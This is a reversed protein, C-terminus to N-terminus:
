CCWCSCMSLCVFVINLVPCCLLCRFEGILTWIRRCITRTRVSSPCPRFTPWRRRRRRRRRSWVPLSLTLRKSFDCRVLYVLFSMDDVVCVDKAENYWWTLSMWTCLYRFFLDNVGYKTAADRTRELCERLVPMTFLTVCCKSLLGLSWRRRELRPLPSRLRSSALERPRPRKM